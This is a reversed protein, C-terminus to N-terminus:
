GHCRAFDPRSGDQYRTAVSSWASRAPAWRSNALRMPAVVTSTGELWTAITEMRVLHRPEDLRRRLGAGRRRGPRLITEHREPLRLRPRHPPVPIVGDRNLLVIAASWASM